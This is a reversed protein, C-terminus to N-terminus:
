SAAHFLLPYGQMAVKGTSCDMKDPDDPQPHMEFYERIAKRLAVNAIMVKTGMEAATEPSTGKGSDFWAVLASREYTMGDGLAIVPDKM